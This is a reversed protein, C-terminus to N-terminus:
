ICPGVQATSLAAASRRKATLSALVPEILPTAMSFNVQIAAAACAVSALDSM